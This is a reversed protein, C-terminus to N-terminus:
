IILHGNMINKLCVVIYEVRSYFLNTLHIIFRMFIYYSKICLNLSLNLKKLNETTYIHWIIKM